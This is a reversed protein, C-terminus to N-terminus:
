FVIAVQMQPQAAGRALVHDRLNGPGAAYARCRQPLGADLGRPVGDRAPVPYTEVVPLVDVPADIDAPAAEEVLFVVHGARRRVIELQVRHNVDPEASRVAPLSPPAPAPTLRRTPNVHSRPLSHQPPTPASCPSAGGHPSCTAPRRSNTRGIIAQGATSPLYHGRASRGHHAAASELM